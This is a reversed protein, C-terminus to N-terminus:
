KAKVIVYIAFFGYSLFGMLSFYVLTYSIWMPFIMSRSWDLSSSNQLIWVFVSLPIVFAIFLFIYDKLGMTVQRYSTKKGKSGFARSELSISLQQIRELAGVFLPTMSPLIASLGTGKLGRSKQANLIIFFESQFLPILQLAMTFIFNIAYPMGLKQLSVFFDSPHSTMIAVLAFISVDWARLVLTLGSYIGIQYVTFPGITFIPDWPKPFAPAIAQLFITTVGLPIWIVFANIFPKWIKAITVYIIGLVFIITLILPNRTSFAIMLTGTTLLWKPLPNFRHIVSNGPYYNIPILVGQRM